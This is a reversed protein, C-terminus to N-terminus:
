GRSPLECSVFVSAAGAIAGAGGFTVVTSWDPRANPENVHQLPSRGTADYIRDDFFYKGQQYVSFTLSRVIGITLLPTMM